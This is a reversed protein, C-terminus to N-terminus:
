FQFSRRWSIYLTTQDSPSASNSTQDWAVRLKEVSVKIEKENLSAFGIRVYPRASREWSYDAASLIGIGQHLAESKWAEVAVNENVKVWLALGGTPVEFQLRTGFRKQLEAVMVDRRLHYEKRMRRAYRQLEGEEILETIAAEVLIDGQRDSLWREQVLREIVSTPACVFGIRLGPALIKSLTGLYVVHGAHDASALPQVPHGDYHFEHDYDDEIIAFHHRKALDLLALRRGANMIVTTPYQHHPTVYVARIREKELLHSLEEVCLGYEDVQIPVLQAGARVFAGWAPRYGLSEIVVKDGPALLSRGLLDLAMQSGRTVMINEPAALVGRTASLMDSLAKRIGLWGQPDGYTLGVPGHDRLARRYARAWAGQPFERVDPVGGSLVKTGAPFQIPIIQNTRVKSLEFGVHQLQNQAGSAAHPRPIIKPIEQSVFTGSALQTSLWGQSILEDYAAVITNRHVQLEEALKRTGPLKDGARLRGRRIDEAIAHAVQLFLPVNAEVDLQLSLQWPKM